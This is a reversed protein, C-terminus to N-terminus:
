EFTLYVIEPRTGVRMPPGWTGAGVSTYVQLSGFRNLGSTFRGYVNRTIWTFPLFQGGHTHGSFQLTFGAQEVIPLRTPAHNLLIALRPRDLNAGNSRLGDLVAKMRLPSSSDRYFVGAIEVGDVTVLENGLVRIGARRVAELYHAPDTFEEHNGTSFFIGLPPTLRRLPAILHDLDGKTGDFLDGPLFVIDPRFREALVALRRCFRAGNIPGLHLDSFLVARRGRWSAPLNPLQIAIRRIRVVRANFLGYIGALFAPIYLVAALLPRAAAPDAPLRSLRFMFWAMWVLISTWFFFNLFGLWVAALWYVLRVAANSFRFALLSAFVFSFALIIMALRLASFSHPALCPWFAIWTAYVLWHGLFLIIQIILIALAPWAKM